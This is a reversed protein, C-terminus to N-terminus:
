APLFREAKVAPAQRSRGTRARRVQDMMRYLKKAGAKTSGNGLHSVVDAPVVFEGDALAARQTARGRIVAPIDDSMGDGPGDLLKGGAKYEGPYGGAAFGFNYNEGIAGGDAFQMEGYGFPNDAEPIGGVGRGGTQPSQAPQNKMDEPLAGAYVPKQSVIKFKSDNKVQANSIPKGQMFNYILDTMMYDQVRKADPHSPGSGMKDLWPKVTSQFIDQASAGEKIKGDKVAGNIVQTMDYVFDENGNKGYKELGPFNNKSTRYFNIFGEALEAAPASGFGRGQDVARWYNRLPIEGMEGKKVFTSGLAALAALGLGIPNMGLIPALGSGAGTLSAIGAGAGYGGLAAQGAKGQEIGKYMTYLGLATQAGPILKGSLSDAKLSKVVKPDLGMKMLENEPMQMLQDPTLASLGAAQIGTAGQLYAPLAGGGQQILGAWVNPDVGMNLLTNPPLQALQEPTLGALSGLGAAAGTAAGTGTGTAAGGTGTGGTPPTTTGTGGTPPTTTGTGGTPPTTTGTGGTPPPTTKGANLFPRDAWKAGASIWNKLAAANGPQMLWNIGVQTALFGAIDGAGGGSTTSETDTGTPWGGYPTGGTYPTNTGGLGAVMGYPNFEPNLARQNLKQVYADGEAVFPNVAPPPTTAAKDKDEQTTTEGGTAFKEEGTFPDIKPEYGGVLERSQPRNIPMPAYSSKVINALPYSQNPYPMQQNMYQDAPQVPGGTAFKKTPDLPVMGKATRRYYRGPLQYPQNAGTGYLPNMGGPVYVIDENAGPINLPKPEEAFAGMVGMLNAYRGLGSGMADMFAQGGEKTTLANKAGQLYTSFGSPQPAAPVPLPPAQTVTPVAGPINVMAQGTLSSTAPTRVASLPLNQNVSDTSFTFNTDKLGGSPAPATTVQGPQAAGVPQGAAAKLGLAINAGSYAGLGATLGKKLDGEILGYGLGVATAAGISSQFVGMGGPGLVAGAVMPLINKLFGAEYLGTEPNITLTGGHAMALQQLGAVEEPAMHVLMSDDGRGRSQVLTALGSQAPQTYM